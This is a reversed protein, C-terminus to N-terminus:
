TLTDTFGTGVLINALIRQQCIGGGGFRQHARDFVPFEAEAKWYQSSRALDQRLEQKIARQTQFVPRYRLVARAIGRLPSTCSELKETKAYLVEFFTICTWIAM